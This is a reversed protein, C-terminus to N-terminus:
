MADSRDRVTRGPPQREAEARALLGPLLPLLFDGWEQLDTRGFYPLWIDYQPRWMGERVVRLQALANRFVEGTNGPEAALAWVEHDDPPIPFRKRIRREVEMGAACEDATLWSLPRFVTPAYDSAKAAAGNANLTFQNGSWSDGWASIQVGVTVYGCRDARERAFACASSSARKFGAARMAPAWIGRLIAHAEKSRAFSEHTEPQTM